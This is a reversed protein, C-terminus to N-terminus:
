RTAPNCAGLIPYPEREIGLKGDPEARADIESLIGYGAEQSSARVRDAAGEFSLNTERSITYGARGTTM